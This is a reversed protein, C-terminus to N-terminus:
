ATSAKPQFFGHLSYPVPCHVVARAKEEFSKADLILLFHSKGRTGIVSSIVVGDDEDDAGPSPVFIPESPYCGPEQWVRSEKNVVDVKILEDILGSGSSRTLGYAFRYNRGNAFSYNIQPLDFTDCLVEFDQGDSVKPLALPVTGATSIPLRYRRLNARPFQKPTDAEPKARLNSLYFDSVIQADPYCSVDVLVETDTEQANVHHFCFFNDAEYKAICKGTKREILYFRSPQNNDWNICQLFSKGSLKMSMVALLNVVFPVEIFVFFNETMGFSHYYALRNHPEFSAVVSVNELPGKSPPGSKSHMPFALINYTTKTGLSVAVNYMTGDPDKHPHPSMSFM